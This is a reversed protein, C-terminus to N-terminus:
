RSTREMSKRADEIASDATKLGAEAESAAQDAVEGSVGPPSAADQEPTRFIRASVLATADYLSQDSPPLRDRAVPRLLAQSQTAGVDAVQAAARYLMARQRETSDPASLEIARQASLDAFASNGAVAATKAMVLYLARRTESSEGNIFEDLEAWQEIKILASIRAVASMFQRLFNEAYPSRRFRTWYQRSLAAFKGFDATEGLLGIERRLAAEEVLGGPALLRALDLKAIAKERDVNALLISQVFAVQAGLAPDLARSDLTLLADREACDVGDLYAVAGKALAEESPAIQHANLIKRGIASNGGSMLYLALARANQKQRWTEPPLAAFSQAVARLLRPLEAFSDRDGGAVREQVDQLRRVLLEPESASSPAAAAVRQGQPAPELQTAAQGQSAASSPGAPAERPAPALAEPVAAEHGPASGPNAGVTDRAPEAQAPTANTMAKAEADPAKESGSLAAVNEAVPTRSARFAPWIVLWGLAAVGVLAAAGAGLYLQSRTNARGPLAFRVGMAGFDPRPIKVRPINIRPIKMGPIKM